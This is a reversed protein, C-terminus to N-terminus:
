VALDDDDVGLKRKKTATEVRAKAKATRLAATKKAAAKVAAPYLDANNRQTKGLGALQNWFQWGSRSSSFSSGSGAATSSILMGVRMASAAVEASIGKVDVESVVM